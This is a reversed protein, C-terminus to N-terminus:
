SLARKAARLSSRRQLSHSGPLTQTVSLPRRPRHIFPPHPAAPGPRPLCRPTADHDPTTDAHPRKETVPSANSPSRGLLKRKAPRASRRGPLHRRVDKNLGSSSPKDFKYVRSRPLDQRSSAYV